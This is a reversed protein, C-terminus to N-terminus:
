AVDKTEHKELKRFRADYLKDLPIGRLLGGLAFGIIWWDGGLRFHFLLGLPIGGISVM